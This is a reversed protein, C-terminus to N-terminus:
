VWRQLIWAVLLFMFLTDCTALCRGYSCGCYGWLIRSSGPTRNSVPMTQASSSPVCRCLYCSYAYFCLALSPLVSPEIINFSLNRVFWGTRIWASFLNSSLSERRPLPVPVVACSWLLLRIMRGADGCPGGWVLSTGPGVWTHTSVVCGLRHSLLQRVWINTPVRHGPRLM